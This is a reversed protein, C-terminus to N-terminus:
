EFIRLDQFQFLDFLVDHFRVAISLHTTSLETKQIPLNVDFCNLVVITFLYPNMTHHLLLLHPKRILKMTCGNSMM